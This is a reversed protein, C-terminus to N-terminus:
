ELFLLPKAKVKGGPFEIALPYHNLLSTGILAAESDTLM